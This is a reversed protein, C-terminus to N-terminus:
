RSARIVRSLYEEGQEEGLDLAAEMERSSEVV